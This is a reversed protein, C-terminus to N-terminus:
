RQFITLQETVTGSVLTINEDEPVDNWGRHVDIMTQRAEAIMQLSVDFRWIKGDDHIQM